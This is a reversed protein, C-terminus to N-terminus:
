LVWGYIEEPKWVDTLIWEEGMANTIDGVAQYDIPIYYGAKLIKRNILQDESFYYYSYSGIRTESWVLTIAHGFAHESPAFCAVRSNWGWFRLLGCTVLAWDECDGGGEDLFRDPRLATGNAFYKFSKYLWKQFAEIESWSLHGNYDLDAEAYMRLIRTDAIGTANRFLVINIENHADRLSLFEKGLEKVSYVTREGQQEIRISYGRYRSIQVEPKKEPEEEKETENKEIEDLVELINEETYIRRATSTYSSYKEVSEKVSWILFLSFFSGFIILCPVLVKYESRKKPTVPEPKPDPNKVYIIQEDNSTETKVWDCIRDLRFTREERRLHCFARIYIRGNGSRYLRIVDIERWTVRGEGNEYQIKLNKGPKLEDLLDSTSTYATSFPTSM